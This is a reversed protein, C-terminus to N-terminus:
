DSIDASLVQVGEHVSSAPEDIVTGTEDFLYICEECASVVVFVRRDFDDGFSNRDHMAMIFGDEADGVNNVTIAEEESRSLAMQVLSVAHWSETLFTKGTSTRLKIKVPQAATM